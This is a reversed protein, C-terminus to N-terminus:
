KQARFFASASERQAPRQALCTSMGELVQSLTISGGDLAALKDKFFAEIETKKAETCFYGGIRALGALNDKPIRKSLKEYNDTIFKYALDPNNGAVSWVVQGVERIPLEEKWVLALADQQLTQDKFSGLLSYLTRRDSRDSSRQAETAYLDFLERGGGLAALYLVTGSQDDPVANHDKLWARALKDAEARLTKDEGSSGMMSVLSGRLLQDEPTDKPKPLLGLARAKAGYNKELFTRYGPVADASLFNQELGDVAGATSSLLYYSPEKLLSPIFGYLDGRSLDGRGVLFQADSWLGLRESESLAKGAKVLKQLLDGQYRTIYYGSHGANPLVWAPCTKAKDLALKGNPQDLIM